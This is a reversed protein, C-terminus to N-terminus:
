GQVLFNLPEINLNLSFVAVLLQQLAFSCDTDRLAIEHEIKFEELSM